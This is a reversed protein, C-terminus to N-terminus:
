VKLAERYAAVAESLLRVAEAGESREAQDRLAIGLNNQTMAWAQPLQERTRVKLAERFAAVADRLHQKAVAGEVRIGLERHCRGSLVQLSAWEQAEDNQSTLALAHQYHELAKSYQQDALAATALDKYGDREIQKMRAAESESARRLRAALEIRESAGSAAQLMKQRLEDVTMGRERALEALVTSVREDPGAKQASFNSAELRRRFEALLESGPDDRKQAAALKEVLAQTDEAIKKTEQVGSKIEGVDKKMERVPGVGSNWLLMVFVFLAMGGGAQITAKGWKPIKSETVLKISGTFFFGFFGCLLSCLIGFAQRRDAPLEKPGFLVFYVLVAFSISGFIWAALRQDKSKTPQGM